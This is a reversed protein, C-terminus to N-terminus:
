AKYKKILFDINRKEQETLTKKNHITRVTEIDKNLLQLKLKSITSKSYEKYLELLTSKLGEVKQKYENGTKAKNFEEAKEFAKLIRDGLKLLANRKFDM